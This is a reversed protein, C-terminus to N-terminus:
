KEELLEQLKEEAFSYKDSLEYYNNQSCNVGVEYNNFEENLEEIKDEIKKKPIDIENIRYEQMENVTKLEIIEKEKNKLEQLVTEICDSDESNIIFKHPPLECKRKDNFIQVIHKCRKIAEELEMEDKGITGNMERTAELEEDDLDFAM